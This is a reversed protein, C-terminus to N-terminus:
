NVVNIPAGDCFAQINEAVRRVVRTRADLSAWAMHPTIICNDLGWLVCDDAMPELTLVDIAAGAIVRDKLAQALENEDVVGGRATNILYATPKMMALTSKNVVKRTADNLPCHFSLFDSERFLTESDVMEIGDISKPTRSYAIVRMGLAQVVRAVSLGITGLGYIGFTKGAVETIPYSFYSFQSSRKWEGAAVSAAYKSTSCALELLFSITLQTVSDTSYGPVNCVVIGKQAAYATDINNYGTAAEAIMKVKSGALV